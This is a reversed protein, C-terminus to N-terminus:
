NLIEVELVSGNGLYVHEPIGPDIVLATTGAQATSRRLTEGTDIATWSDGRDDSRFLGGGHMWAFLRTPAGSDIGLGLVRDGFLGNTVSSFTQGGDLSRIIEFGQRLRMSSKLACRTSRLLRLIGL